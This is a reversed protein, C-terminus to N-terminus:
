FFKKITRAISNEIAPKRRTAPPPRPAALPARTVAPAASGGLRRLLAETALGTVALRESREYAEIAAELIAGYVGDNPGSPFGARALRTQLERMRARDNIIHAGAFLELRPPLLDAGVGTNAIEDPRFRRVIEDNQMMVKSQVYTGVNIGVVEPGLPGNMLLPSGSSAGGSDCTHLLLKDADAFDRALSAHDIGDIPPNVECPSLALEWNRFDRHYAVLYVRREAALKSVEEIPRTSFRLGGAKCVSRALRVLAWDHTADIPPRVSLRMSGAMINQTAAGRDAGAIRTHSKADRMGLRFWMNGVPLPKQGDIRFLCHAATAVVDPAVCFATCVSRSRPEYIVGIQQKFGRHIAPLAVREDKGFVAAPALLPRAAGHTSSIRPAADARAFSLAAVGLVAGWVLSRAGGRGSSRHFRGWMGPLVM